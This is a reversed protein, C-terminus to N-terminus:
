LYVNVFTNNFCRKILKNETSVKLIIMLKGSFNTNCSFYFRSEKELFEICFSNNYHNDEM